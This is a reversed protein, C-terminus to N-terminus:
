YRLVMYFVMYFVKLYMKPSFFAIRLGLSDEVIKLDECGTDPREPVTREQEVGREEQTPRAQATQLRVPRAKEYSAGSHWGPALSTDLAM